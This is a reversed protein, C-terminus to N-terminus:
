ATIFPTTPVLTLFLLLTLTIVTLLFSIPATLLVIEYSASCSASHYQTHYSNLLAKVAMHCLSPWVSEMVIEETARILFSAAPIARFCPRYEQAVSDLQQSNCGISQHDKHKWTFIRLANGKQEHKFLFFSLQYNPHGLPLILSEELIQFTVDDLYNWIISNLRTTKLLDNLLQAM